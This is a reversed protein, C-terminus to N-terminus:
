SWCSLWQEHEDISIGKPLSLVLPWFPSRPVVRSIEM